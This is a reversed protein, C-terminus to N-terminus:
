PRVGPISLRMRYIGTLATMYLTRGDDDGWALNHANEPGQILGLRKGEPSLIWVGGPGCVYVNGRQDVKVGDIADDGPARTMDYFVEGKAVPGDAKVPYRMVVKHKLDWNGVYLYQEDPSFAIGNPGSLEDTVLTVKGDRVMFVGSFPLEKRPDDFARPLGFPPDTFYLSGDSRYVLDNPSNLRKGQYRDALVTTNGRPEVRLIRRNGHQCITLRGDRDFTLGNSGPQTYDGIDYGSYGSKARFVEVKGDPVWRYIVNTNPSSFLLSGDKTNWLPGETFVFGGAVQELTAGAPVIADLLPDDKIVEFPVDSAVYARDSAYFDLTATRVWIYNRPGVSIPGNMGFVAIQFQQGPRVNRGLVVRNPTNFGGVVQGGTQGLSLPLKGDVWIEAYDDVAIEFVVTAGTPDFTGIREPITVKIRYWNFCVRGTSLRKELDAPALARWGSDDFNAGEAHPLIDYTRNPQGSPGLDPGVGVFDIGTVQTDSYRWQGRVLRVGDDTQLDIVADPLNPLLEPPGPLRIARMAKRETAHM